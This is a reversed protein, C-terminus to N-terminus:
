KATPVLNFSAHRSINRVGQLTGQCNMMRVKETDQNLTFSCDTQFSEGRENNYRILVSRRDIPKVVGVFTCLENEIRADLFNVRSKSLTIRTKTQKLDSSGDALTYAGIFADANQHFLSQLLQTETSGTLKTLTFKGGSSNARLNGTCDFRIQNPQAQALKKNPKEQKKPKCRATHVQTKYTNPNQGSSKYMLKLQQEQEQERIVGGVYRNTKPYIKFAYENQNLRSRGIHIFGTYTEYGSGNPETAVMQYTGFLKGFDDAQAQTALASISILVAVRLVTLTCSKQWNHKNLRTIM